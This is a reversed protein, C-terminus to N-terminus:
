DIHALDLKRLEDQSLTSQDEDDNSGVNDQQEEGQQVDSTTDDKIVTDTNSINTLKDPPLLADALEPIDSLVSTITTDTEERAVQAAKELRDQMTGAYNPDVWVETDQKGWHSGPDNDQLNGMCKIEALYDKGDVEVGCEMCATVGLKNTSAMRHDCKTIVTNTAFELEVDGCRLRSVGAQRLAPLADLIQKLETKTPM